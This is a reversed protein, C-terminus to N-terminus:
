IPGITGIAFGEIKGNEFSHNQEHDVDCAGSALRSFRVIMYRFHKVFIGFLSQRDQGKWRVVKKLLRVIVFNDLPLHQAENSRVPKVIRPKYQKSFRTEHSIGDIIKQLFLYGSLFNSVVEELVEDRPVTCRNLVYCTVIELKYRTDFYYKIM